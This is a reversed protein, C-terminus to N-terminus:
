VELGKVGLKLLSKDAEFAEKREMLEVVDFNVSLFRGRLFEAEPSALWVCFNAPLAMDDLTVEGEMGPIAELTKRYMKTDVIGPHISFVRLTPSELAVFEDLKLAAIKTATYASNLPMFAVPVAISGALLNIYTANPRAKPLFHTSWFQVFKISVEFARFWDDTDSGAITTFDPQHAAANIFIDWAGIAVRINHAALGSSENNTQDMIEIHVEVRPHDSLIQAKTAELTKATRGLLGIKAAGAKAYALAIGSGISGLGGGTIYVTKGNCSLEPRTPDLTTDTEHYLKKTFDYLGM